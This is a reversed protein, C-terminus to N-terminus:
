YINCILFLSIHMGQTAGTNAATTDFSLAFVKEVLRCDKLRNWVILFTQLGKSFDFNM